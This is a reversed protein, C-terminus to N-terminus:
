WEGGKQGEGRGWGRQGVGLDAICKGNQQEVRTLLAVLVRGVRQLPGEQSVLLSRAGECLHDEGLQQLEELSLHWM